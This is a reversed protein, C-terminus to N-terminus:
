AKIAKVVISPHFHFNPLQYVTEFEVFELLEILTNATYWAWHSNWKDGTRGRLHRIAFFVDDDREILDLTGMMDPVSIILPAGHKLATRWRRLAMIANIPTFHEFLQIAIIKDVTERMGMFHSADGIVDYVTERRKPLKHMDGNLRAYYDTITTKNQAVLEPHELASVGMIDLNCYGELYIGGCGLHYKQLWNEEGDDYLFPTSM